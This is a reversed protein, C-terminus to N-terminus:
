VRHTLHEAVEASDWRDKSYLTAMKTYVDKSSLTCLVNEWDKNWRWPDHQFSPIKFKNAWFFLSFSARAMGSAQVYPKTTFITDIM